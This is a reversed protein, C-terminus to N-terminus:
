YKKKMRTFDPRDFKYGSYNDDEFEIIKYNEFRERVYDKIINRQNIISEYREKDEDYSVRSYSAIRLPENRVCM